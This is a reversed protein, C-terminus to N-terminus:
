FPSRRVRPGQPRLRPWQARHSFTASRRLAPRAARWSAIANAHRIELAALNSTWDHEPLLRGTGVPGQASVGDNFATKSVLMKTEAKAIGPPCASRAMSKTISALTFRQMDLCIM